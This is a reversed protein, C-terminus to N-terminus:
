GEWGELAGTWFDPNLFLIGLLVMVTLIVVLTVALATARDGHFPDDDDDGPRLGIGFAGLAMSGFAALLVWPVLQLYGRGFSHVSGVVFVLGAIFLMGGGCGIVGIRERLSATAM